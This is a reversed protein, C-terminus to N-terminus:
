SSQKFNDLITKSLQRLYDLIIQLYLRLQSVNPQNVSGQIEVSRSFLEQRTPHTMKTYVGGATSTTNLQAPPKVIVELKVIAQSLKKLTKFGFPCHFNESATQSENLYSAHMPPLYKFKLSM